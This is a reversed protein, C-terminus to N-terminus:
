CGGILNSFDEYFKSEVEEAWKNTETTDIDHDRDNPCYFELYPSDHEPGKWADDRSIKDDVIKFSKTPVIYDFVIEEGCVKCKM